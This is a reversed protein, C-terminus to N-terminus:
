TLHETTNGGPELLQMQGRNPNRAEGWIQRWIEGFRARHQGGAEAERDLWPCRAPRREPSAALNTNFELARHRCSDILM